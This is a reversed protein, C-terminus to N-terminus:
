RYGLWEFFNILSNLGEDICLKSWSWLNCVFSYKMRQILFEENEFAIRNREKWVALFVCLPQRGCREVSRAWTLAVGDLFPIELLFLFSRLLALFLM